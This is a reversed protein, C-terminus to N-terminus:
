NLFGEGILAEDCLKHINREGTTALAVLRKAILELVVDPQDIVRAIAEDYAARLIAATEPDFNTFSPVQAMSESADGARASVAGLGGSRVSCKELWSLSNNQESDGCDVTSVKLIAGPTALLTPGDLRTINLAVRRAEDKTPFKAASRHLNRDPM